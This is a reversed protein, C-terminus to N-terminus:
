MSGWPGTQASGPYGQSPPAKVWSTFPNQGGGTGNAQGQPAGFMPPQQPQQQQFPPPSSVGGMSNLGGFPSPSPNFSMQPVNQNMQLGGGAGNMHSFPNPAPQSLYSPAQQQPNFPSSQPQSPAFPSPSPNFPSSSNNFSSPLPNFPQQMQQPQAAMQAFPNGVGSPLPPPSAMFGTQQPMQMQQQFPSTGLGNPMNSGMMGMGPSIPTGGLSGGAGLYSGNQTPFPNTSSLTSPITMPQSQPIYQLPLTSNQIGGMSPGSQLAAIDNWVGGAPQQPQQPQLQPQASPVSVTSARVPPPQPSSSPM